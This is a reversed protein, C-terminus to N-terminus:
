KSPRVHVERHKPTVGRTSHGERDANRDAMGERPDLPSNVEQNAGSVNLPSAPEGEQSSEKEMDHLESEPATDNPDYASPHQAVESDTGSNTGENREPDLATRNFDESQTFGADKKTTRLNPISSFSQAALTRLQPQTRQVAKSAAQGLQSISALRKFM